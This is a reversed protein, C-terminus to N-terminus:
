SNTPQLRCVGVAPQPSMIFHSTDVGTERQFPHPQMIYIRFYRVGAPWLSQGNGRPKHGIEDAGM